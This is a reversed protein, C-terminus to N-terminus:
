RQDELLDVVICLLLAIPLVVLLVGLGATLSWDFEAELVAVGAGITACVTLDRIM